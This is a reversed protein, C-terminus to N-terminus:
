VRIYIKMKQLHKIARVMQGNSPSQRIPGPLVPRDREGTVAALM